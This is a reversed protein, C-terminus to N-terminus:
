SGTGKKLNFQATASSTSQTAKVSSLYQGGTSATMPLANVLDPSSMSPQYIRMVSVDAYAEIPIMNQDFLTYTYDLEAIVGQFQYSNAGGFVVQLPYTMPPYGGAGYNGVGVNAGGTTAADFIGVLRELARIDWRCGIQSPGTTGGQWVEYMRNFYITFSITQNTVWYGGYQMVSPDQQLPSTLNSTDINSGMSIQQPNMMFYLRFQKTTLDIMGGRVLKNAPPVHMQQFFASFPLNDRPDPLAAIISQQAAAEQQWTAGTSGQTGTGSTSSSGGGGSGGSGETSPRMAGLFGDTPSAGGPAYMTGQFCVQGTQPEEITQNNGAYMVVHGQSGSIGPPGFILLDGVILRTQLTANSIGADAATCDVVRTLTTNNNWFQAVTRGGLAVGPAGPGTQYSYVMLGSCDLGPGQPPPMNGGWAYPVGLVTRAVAYAQQGVQTNVAVQPDQTSPATTVPPGSVDPPNVVPM